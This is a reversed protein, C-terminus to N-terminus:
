TAAGVTMLVVGAGVLAIGLWALPSGAGPEGLARATVATFALTSAQTVPVALSLDSSRLTYYFVASGAQNAAWAALWAPSRV